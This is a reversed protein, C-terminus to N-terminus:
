GDLLNRHQAPLSVVLGDLAATINIQCGLRSTRALGFALDLMDAEEESTPELRGYWEGDVIVHCTSCAMSGECAGELDIGNEQAVDLLTDGEAADFERRKGDAEIFTVKLM